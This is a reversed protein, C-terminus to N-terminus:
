HEVQKGLQKSSDSGACNPPSVICSYATKSFINISHADLKIQLYKFKSPQSVLVMFYVVVVFTGLIIYINVVYGFINDLSVDM